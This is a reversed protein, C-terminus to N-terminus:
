VCMCLGVRLDGRVVCLRQYCFFCFRCLHEVLPPRARNFRNVLYPVGSCVWPVGSCVWCRLHCRKPRAAPDPLVLSVPRPRHSSRTPSCGIGNTAYRRGKVCVHVLQWGWLLEGTIHLRVHLCGLQHQRHALAQTRRARALASGWQWRPPSSRAAERAERSTRRPQAVIPTHSNAQRTQSMAAGNGCNRHLKLTDANM